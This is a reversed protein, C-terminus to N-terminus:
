TRSVIGTTDSFNFGYSAVHWENLKKYLALVDFGAAECYEEILEKTPSGWYGLIQGTLIQETRFKGSIRRLRNNYEDVHRWDGEDLLGNMQGVGGDGKDEPLEPFKCRHWLVQEPIAFMRYGRTWARLALCPEDGEFMLAPDPLLEWFFSSRSFIFHNSICHHESWPSKAPAGYSYVPMWTMAARFDDFIQMSPSTTIFGEAQDLKEVEGDRIIYRPLYQTIIPKEFEKELEQHKSILLTDWGDAFLHHADLKLMYPEDNHLAGAVVRALDAGRPEHCFVNMVRINPNDRFDEFEGTTSQQCIGFFVNEPKEAAALAGEVTMRLHDENFSPILVFIREDVTM